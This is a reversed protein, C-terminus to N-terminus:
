FFREFFNGFLLSQPGPWDNALQKDKFSYKSPLNQFEFIQGLNNINYSYLSDGVTYLTRIKSYMSCAPIRITNKEIDFTVPNVKFFLGANTALFESAVPSGFPTTYFDETCAPVGFLSMNAYMPFLQVLIERNQLQYTTKFDPLTQLDTSRKFQKQILIQNNKKTPEGFGEIDELVIGIPQAGPPPNPPPRDNESILVIIGGQNSQYKSYVDGLLINRDDKNLVIEKASNPYFKSMNVNGVMNVSSYIYSGARVRQGSYLIIRGGKIRYPPNPAITPLNDGRLEPSSTEEFDPNWFQETIYYQSNYRTFYKYFDRGITPTVQLFGSYESYGSGRYLPYAGSIVMTTIGNSLIPTNQSHRNTQSNSSTGLYGNLSNWPLPNNSNNQITSSYVLPANHATITQQICPISRRTDQPTRSTNEQNNLNLNNSWFDTLCVGMFANNRGPQVGEPSFTTITDMFQILGNEDYSPERSVYECTGRGQQYPQICTYSTERRTKRNNISSQSTTKQEFRETERVIENIQDVEPRSIIQVAQGAYIIGIPKNPQTELLTSPFNFLSDQRFQSNKPTISGFRCGGWGMTPFKNTGNIMSIGYRNGWNFAQMYFNVGVSTSPYTYDPMINSYNTQKILATRVRPTQADSLIFNESLTSLANIDVQAVKYNTITGTGLGLIKCFYNQNTTSVFTQIDELNYLTQGLSWPGSINPYQGPILSTLFNYIISENKENPLINGNYTGINSLNIRSKSINGNEYVSGVFVNAAGSKSQQGSKTAIFYVIYGKRVYSEKLKLKSKIQTVQYM